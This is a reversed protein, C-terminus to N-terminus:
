RLYFLKLSAAMPEPDPQHFQGPLSQHEANPLSQAMAQAASRLWKPSGTSELLLTPVTTTAARETPVQADGVVEADYALTHAMGELWPWMPTQRAQEAEEPPQGVAKTMFLAVADGRRGEACLQTYEKALNPIPPRSEDANYPPEVIALKTISAGQAAAEFALIGGSSVGFAYASGGAADIVAQLDEIERAVAYPATDGSDGRGRRDYSFVTFDEQLLAALPAAFSRDCFAGGVLVVAPGSGSREYAIFTGDKSTVTNM